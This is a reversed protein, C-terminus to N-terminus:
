RRARLWDILGSDPLFALQSFPALRSVETLFAISFELGGASFFPPFSCAVLKAVVESAGLAALHHGDAHRLFFGRTLATCVPAALPEDGHWPTGYMLIQDAVRRLIVRDDSLVTVGPRGHWLGAITSKGAGSHGVFLYGAGNADRVACAHVEVGRGLALWNTVVLEDLPYELPYIPSTADFYPRHLHVTGASLDPAFVATKYPTPGFRPSTFTWALQGGTDRLQWLGGSDFLLRGPQHPRGDSWRAEVRVDADADEVVFRAVARPVTLALEPDGSEITIVIAGIALQMAPRTSSHAHSTAAGARPENSVDVGATLVRALQLGVSRQV